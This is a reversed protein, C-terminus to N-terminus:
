FFVTGSVKALVAPSRPKRAEFLEGVRPLGSTIDMARASEKITKAITRGAKIMEGDEVLLIAGSPLQYSAIENDGEDTIHIRPQKTELQFETIRKVPVGGEDTEEKLTTGEIIDEYKVKGALEAIIPDNFPEFTAIAKEKEVVTGAKGSFDSGNRIEVKQDHGILYLTKTVTVENTEANTIEATIIKAYAIEPSVIREGGRRIIPNGKLVQKGDEVLLVDGSEIKYEKMVKNVIAQGRRTFLWHGNELEIHSGNIERIYV